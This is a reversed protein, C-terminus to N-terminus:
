YRNVMVGWQNNMSTTAAEIAETVTGIQNVQDLNVYKITKETLFEREM